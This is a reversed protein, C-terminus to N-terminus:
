EKIRVEFKINVIMNYCVGVFFDLSFYLLFAVLHPLTKIM